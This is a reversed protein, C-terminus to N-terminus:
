IVGNESLVKCADGYWAAARDLHDGTTKLRWQNGDSPYLGGANYAAAVLIPDDGTGALRWRIEGTGIDINVKGDYLPHTKPGKAPKAAIAPAVAFPQYNLGFAAGKNRIMDRVSTSLGQMPGASYAGLFSPNVDTNEVHAEWRFTTPGTFKAGMAFGSETAITMIILAPNIDHKDAAALIAPGYIAYIRRCTTPEGPTRRLIEAGTKDRTYVGRHDYRWDQGGYVNHWGASGPKAGAFALVPKSPAAGPPKASPTTALGDLGLRIAGSALRALLRTPNQLPAPRPGGPLWRHNQKTKPTYTEFHIMATGSVRAIKQGAMVQSGVGWGYVVNSDRTVEGYNIVVGDHEIFLAYTQEGTSPRTYFRYFAVIKGDACAVVEDSAHCFLDVGVHYRAGSQRNALFRRGESGVFTGNAREYSILLAQPHATIVPWFLRNHGSAFAAFPVDQGRPTPDIDDEWPAPEAEDDLHDAELAAFASLAGSSTTLGDHITAVEALFNKWGNAEARLVRPCNKGSWHNHQVVGTAVDVGHKKALAATLLAAKAYAAEKKMDANMCIEVGISVANGASSAAHWGVEEDPLSQYVAEDDVTYHWSVERKVADAGKVYKAHAAAGAGVNANDTNHITIATPTRPTRPRNSNTIPIFDQIIALEKFAQDLRM